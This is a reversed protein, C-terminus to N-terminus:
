SVMRSIDNSFVLVMLMLILGLGVGQVIEMQRITLPRGRVAEILLLVLHGGDLVPVPLINLVGLGISLIGMTTLVAILGHALSEGAIKGIMIPGGLTKSSVSGGLMKGISVFNRGTLLIMRETGKYILAFPNWIREVVMEPEATVLMPMVGVTFTTIKSLLADKGETATPDVSVTEIKGEHEWSLAVKGTKEGSSQVAEKLEFFSQVDKGGVSVLRDGPKLGAKEAPSGAVTKEVFLESSHLGWDDGPAWSPRLPKTLSVSRAALDGRKVKFEIPAGPKAARYRHELDEWSAVPEGAFEVIQDGTKIGSAGAPSKPDSIGVFTSRPFPLLGEVEGVRTQEGYVNLGHEAGSTVQITAPGGGHPHQVQFSMSRGPSENLALLVEEYRTVEKDNVKLIRDGSQFGAKEAVSHHVVRGVTSAIQKEGIALIAMFIVIAFLFNFLPGGFFIFFRKWPAQKHLARRAEEPSLESDRDEGLLKVYGGLPVGSVRWETEGIQKSWLKPGFGISFVEARVNFLRAFLYHGFEHVVVLPGLIILFGIVSMM